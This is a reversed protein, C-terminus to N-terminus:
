GLMIKTPIVIPIIQYGAGLGGGPKEFGKGPMMIAYISPTSSIKYGADLGKGPKGFGKGPIAM